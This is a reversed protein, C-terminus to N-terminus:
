VTPAEWQTAGTTANAYYVRGSADQGQTWGSPLLAQGAAPPPPPQGPVPPALDGSPPPPAADTSSSQIDVTIGVTSEKTGPLHKV